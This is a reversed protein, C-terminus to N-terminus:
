VNLSLRELFHRTLHLRSTPYTPMGTDTSPPFVDFVQRFACNFATASESHSVCLDGIQSVYRGDNGERGRVRRRREAAFMSSERIKEANRSCGPASSVARGAKGRKTGGSGTTSSASSKKSRQREAISTMGSNASPILGRILRPRIGLRERALSRFPPTRFRLHPAEPALDVVMTGLCEDVAISSGRVRPWYGLGQVMLPHWRHWAGAARGCTCCACGGQSVVLAATVVLGRGPVRPKTALVWVAM